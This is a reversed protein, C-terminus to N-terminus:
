YIRYNGLIQKGGGAEHISAIFKIKSIDVPVKKLDVIIQEDDGEGEGTLNDGMHIISDSSHKPNNYFIFDSEGRVKGTKNVLLTATDLDFDQSGGYKYPDWGLGVIILNLESNKMLDSRQGKQLSVPM